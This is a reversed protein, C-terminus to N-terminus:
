VNEPLPVPLLPGLVSMWTHPRCEPPTVHSLFGAWTRTGALQAQCDETKRRHGLPGCPSYSACAPHTQASCPPALTMQM